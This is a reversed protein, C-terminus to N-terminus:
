SVLLGAGGSTGQAAAIGSVFSARDNAIGDGVPNYSTIDILGATVNAFVNTTFTISSTGINVPDDSAILRYLLNGGTAGGTVYILSGNVVDKTGDFDSDRTWPGTSALYVGNNVSSTQNKVLVRDDADLLVGDVTQLGSLTLAATSAVVAPNKIAAGSALGSIRDIQASVM